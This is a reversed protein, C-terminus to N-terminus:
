AMHCDARKLVNDVIQQDDVGLKVVSANAVIHYVYREM